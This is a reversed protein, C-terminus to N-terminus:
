ILESLVRAGLKVTRGDADKEPNIEVIDLAKLNKIKNIRQVIYLFEKSSLGGPECYGTAPAFAPDAADIDLSVYLDGNESDSFETIFDCTSEFDEVFSDMPVVNIKNEKLFDAEHKDKNRVGVLLVNESLFGSEILSRLWDEHTPVERGEKSGAAEMCDPHADFVILFPEKKEKKCSDFFARTLPYSVSHDGGLFIAKEENDFIKLANSYIEENSKEVDSNDIPIDRIELSNRDLIKGQGNSYIEELSKLIEDPAKECGNTKGLGNIGPVKLIIKNM